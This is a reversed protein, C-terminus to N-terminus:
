LAIQLYIILLNLLYIFVLLPFSQKRLGELPATSSNELSFSAFDLEELWLTWSAGPWWTLDSPALPPPAHLSSVTKLTQTDRQVEEAPSLQARSLEAWSHEPDLPLSRSHSSSLWVTALTVPPCCSGPALSSSSRSSRSRSSRSSQCTTLVAPLTCLPSLASHILSPLFILLLASSLAAGSLPLPVLSFVLQFLFSFFFCCTLSPIVDYHSPWLWSICESLSTFFSKTSKTSVPICVSVSIKISIDIVLWLLM